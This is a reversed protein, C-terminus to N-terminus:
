YYSAQFILSMYNNKSKWYQEILTNDSLLWDITHLVQIKLCKSLSFRKSEETNAYKFPFVSYAQHFDGNKLCLKVRKMPSFLDVFWSEEYFFKLIVYFMNSKISSTQLLFMYSFFLGLCHHWSKNILYTCSKQRLHILNPVTCINM